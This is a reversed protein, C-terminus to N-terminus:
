DHKQMTQYLMICEKAEKIDHVRLIKAGQTLALTNLVSTGNLSNEANTQLVKSIMSKRSFGVLIPRDFISFSALDRLLTFNHDVTKGFGFGPDIVIDKVGCDTATHIQKAFFSLVDMTVNDYMPNEQMTKPLGRMHMLIIPVQYKAVTAFMQEDYTGGSIDNIFSAGGELCFAATAAHLTDISILIEPFEQQLSPLVAKFMNIEVEPDIIESGPKSSMVGIDILNCGFLLAEEVYQLIADLSVRRSAKYFSDTNVNVVGMVQPVSFDVLKGSCNLIFDKNPTVHM